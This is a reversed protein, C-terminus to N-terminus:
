RDIFLTKMCASQGRGSAVQHTTFLQRLANGRDRLLLQHRAYNRANKALQDETIKVMQEVDEGLQWEDTVLQVDV